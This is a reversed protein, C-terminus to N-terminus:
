PTADNETAELDPMPVYRDNMFQILASTVDFAQGGFLVGEGSRGWNLVVDLGSEEAFVAVEATLNVAIEEQIVAEMQILESQQQNQMQTLANEIEVLRNQAMLVEDQTASPGNAYNILEQAEEQLPRGKREMSMQAQQVAIFMSKERDAIFQYNAQISDGHVFAVVASKGDRIGEPLEAYGTDVVEYTLFGSWLALLVFAVVTIKENM